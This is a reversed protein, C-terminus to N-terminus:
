RTVLYIAALLGVLAVALLGLVEARSGRSGRHRGM